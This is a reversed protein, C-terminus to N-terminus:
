FLSLGLNLEGNVLCNGGGRCRSVGRLLENFKHRKAETRGRRVPWSNSDLWQSKVYASRCV